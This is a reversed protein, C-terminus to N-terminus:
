LLLNSLNHGANGEVWFDNFSQSNRAPHSCFHFKGALEMAECIVHKAEVGFAYMKVDPSKQIVQALINAMFSRWFKIHEGAQKGRSNPVRPVTLAANLLLIKRKKLVKIWEQLTRKRYIEWLPFLTGKESFERFSKPPASDGREPDILFAIGTADPYKSDLPGYETFYPDQGLIVYQVESPPVIELARFINEPNPFVHAGLEGNDPLAIATWGKAKAAEFYQRLDGQKLLKEQSMTGGRYLVLYDRQVM